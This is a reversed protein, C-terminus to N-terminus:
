GAGVTVGCTPNGIGNRYWIGSVDEAVQSEIANCPIESLLIATFRKALNRKSADVGVSMPETCGADAM